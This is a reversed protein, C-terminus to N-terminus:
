RCKKDDGRPAALSRMLSFASEPLVWLQHFMRKMEDTINFPVDEESSSPDADMECNEEDSVPKKEKKKCVVAM